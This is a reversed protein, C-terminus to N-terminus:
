NCAVESLMAERVAPREAVRAQFARLHPYPALDIGVHNSWDVVTFAYADVVTFRDGAIYPQEQLLSDLEAFRDVLRAVIIGRTEEPTDDRWLLGFTKHIETAIFVLWSQIRVRERTGPYPILDRNAGADAIVEVLIATETLREGDDLELLPVYGRPNIQRFDRGDELRGHELDVKLLELPVEAEIAVIHVALSCAYPAYYLKM